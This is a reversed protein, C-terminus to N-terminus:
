ETAQNDARELSSINNILEEISSKIAIKESEFTKANENKSILKQELQEKQVRLQNNELKLAKCEKELDRNKHIIQLVKKKLEELQKMM